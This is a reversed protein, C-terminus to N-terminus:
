ASVEYATMGVRMQPGAASGTSRQPSWGLLLVTVPQVMWIELVEADTMAVTPTSTSHRRSAVHGVGAGPALTVAVALGPLLDNVLLGVADPTLPGDVLRQGACVGVPRTRVVPRVRQLLQEGQTQIRVVPRGHSQGVKPAVRTGAVPTSVM